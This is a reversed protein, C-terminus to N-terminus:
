RRQEAVLDSVNGEVEIPPRPVHRRTNRPPRVLGAAVLEALRDTSADVPIVRAIPRGRETVVIEGGDKVRQLHRSLNNSLERVGVRNSSTAVTM